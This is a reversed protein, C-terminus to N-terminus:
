TDSTKRSLHSSLALWDGAFCKICRENFDPINAIINPWTRNLLVDNNYDSFVVTKAGCKLAQLGPIGAGCGLELVATTSIDVGNFQQKIYNCLDVSCEWVTHGGEYVGPILDYQLQGELLAHSRLIRMDAIDTWQNSDTIIPAADSLIEKTTQLEKGLVTVDDRSELEM